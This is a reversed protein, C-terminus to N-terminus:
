VDDLQSEQDRRLTAALKMVKKRLISGGVVLANGTKKVPKGNEVTYLMPDIVEGIIYGNLGAVNDITDTEADAISVIEGTDKNYLTYKM